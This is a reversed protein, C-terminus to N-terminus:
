RMHMYPLAPITNEEGNEIHHKNSGCDPCVIENQSTLNVTTAFSDPHNSKVIIIDQSGKTTM